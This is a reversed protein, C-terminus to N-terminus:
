PMLTLYNFCADHRPLTLVGRGTPRVTMVQYNCYTADGNEWYRLDYGTGDVTLTSESCTAYGSCWYPNALGTDTETWYTANHHGVPGTGNVYADYRDMQQSGGDWACSHSTQRVTVGPATFVDGTEAFGCQAEDAGGVPLAMSLALAALLWAKGGM